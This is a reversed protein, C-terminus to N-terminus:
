NPLFLPLLCTLNDQCVQIRKIENLEDRTFRIIVDALLPNTISSKRPSFDTADAIDVMEEALTLQDLLFTLNVAEDSSLTVTGPNLDFDFAILDRNRPTQYLIPQTAQTLNLRIVKQIPLPM